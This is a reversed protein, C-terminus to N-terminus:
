HPRHHTGSTTLRRIANNQPDSVYINGDRDIALGYAAFQADLAPGGDGSYNFTMDGQSNTVYGSGAVSEIIRDTSIRFVMGNESDSFYINGVADLALASVTGNTRGTPLSGGPAGAASSIIGDASIKYVDQGVGAYINGADDIALAQPAFSSNMALSGDVIPARTGNGAITTIIGDVSVKRLCAESADAIYINSSHDVALGLFRGLQAANAPGGDGSYGFVGTGAFTSIVGGPTVKRVVGEGAIYLNGALDVALNYASIQASTAQGGDGSYGYSGNGAVTSV